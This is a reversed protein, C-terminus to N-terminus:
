NFMFVYPYILATNWRTALACTATIKNNIAGSAKAWCKSDRAERLRMSAAEVSKHPTVQSTIQTETSEAESSLINDWPRSTFECNYTLEGELGLEATSWSYM